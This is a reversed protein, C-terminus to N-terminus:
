EISYINAVRQIILQFDALINPLNDPTLVPVHVFICPINRQDLSKLVEYYLGECVFKGADHSIETVALGTVLKVLDVSTNLLLESSSSMEAPLSNLFSQWNKLNFKSDLYGFGLENLKECCTACSEVTLIQRGAAMGCCIVADPRLKEIKAIVLSASESVNVPLRRLFTLNPSINLEAIEALLDDSANSVQHPMWTQFSTLLIKKNM